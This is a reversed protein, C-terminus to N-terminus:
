KIMMTNAESVKKGDLLLRYYYIGGPLQVSTTYRNTGVSAPLGEITEVLAGSTSFIQIAVSQAQEKLVYSFTTSGSFPNPYNLVAEIQDATQISEIGTPVIDGEAKLSNAEADSFVAKLLKVGAPLQMIVTKGAPITKGDMSYGLTRLTDGNLTSAQVLHAADSLLPIEKTAGTFELQIGAVPVQSTMSLFGKDDLELLVTPQYADRLESAKTVPKGQIINVIGIVDAVEISNDYNVDAEHFGFREIMNELDWLIYSVTATVDAVNVLKDLNTDGDRSYVETQLNMTWGPFLSNQITATVFDGAMLADSITYTADAELPTKAGTVANVSEWSITSAVGGINMEASFDLTSGYASCGERTTGVDTYLNVDIPDMQRPNQVGSFRLKSNNPYLQKLAPFAALDITETAEPVGYTVLRAALAPNTMEIPELQTGNLKLETLNTNNSLDLATLETNSVDLYELATYPSVILTEIGTGLLMLSRLTNTNEPLTVEKLSNNYALSLIELKDLSRLDVSEAFSNFMSYLYLETLRRPEENNWVAQAVDSNEGTQWVDNDWWAQLAENNSEGVIRGIVEVDGQHFLVPRGTEVHIYRTEMQWGSIYNVDTIECFQPNMIKCWYDGFAEEKSDLVFVGPRGEVPIFAEKEEQGYKANVWLFISEVGNIVAESSLDITDGNEFLSPAELHSPSQLLIQSIGSYNVNSRYNKLQSYRLASEGYGVNLNRLRPYGALDFSEVNEPLGLYELNGAVSSPPLAYTTESLDLALISSPLNQIYEGFQDTEPLYLTRLNPITALCRADLDECREIQVEQLQKFESFDFSTIHAHELLFRTLKSCGKLNISRLKTKDYENEAEDHYRSMFGFYELDPCMSVDISELNRSYVHLHKLKTNESLDLESINMYQECEFWELETFTSLDLKSISDPEDAWDLEIRLHTLRYGDESDKWDTSIVDQYSDWNEREWGKSDVFEKLQLVQPNDEALKRLALTDQPAYGASTRAVRIEPTRMYWNGYAENRIECWFYNGVIGQFIFKGYESGAMMTAEQVLSGDKNRGYWQFESKVGNVEAYASLDIETGYQAYANYDDLMVAGKAEIRTDGSMGFYESQTTPLTVDTWNLKTDFLAVNRLNSLSALNLKELRTGYIEIRQLATLQSFDLTSVRDERQDDIYFQIVRSPDDQSWVVGVNYGDNYDWDKKYYEKEIFDQLDTSMPNADAMAKLAAVDNEDYTIPIQINLRYDGTISCGEADVLGIYVYGRCDATAKVNFTYTKTQLDSIDCVFIGESEETIGEGSVSFANGGEQFDYERAQIRLVVAEGAFVGASVPIQLPVDVNLDGSLRSPLQIFPFNVDQIYRVKGAQTALPTTTMDMSNYISVSYGIVAEESCIMDWPINGGWEDVGCYETPFWVGGNADIQLPTEVGSGQPIAVLRVGYPNAVDDLQLRVYMDSTLGRVSHFFSCIGENEWEYIRTYRMADESDTFEVESVEQQVGPEGGSGVDGAMAAQGPVAMCLAFAAVLTRLLSIKM